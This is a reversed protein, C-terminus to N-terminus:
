IVYPRRCSFIFLHISYSFTIKWKSNSAIWILIFLDCNFHFYDRINTSANSCTIKYIRRPLSYNKYRKLIHFLNWSTILLHHNSEYNYEDADREIIVGMEIYKAIEL